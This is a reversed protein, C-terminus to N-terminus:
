SRKVPTWARPVSLTEDPRIAFVPLRFEIALRAYVEILPPMLAAGMHADLHTVDIGADLAREIQARLEREVEDLAAGAIAAATTRPFCGDADVLSPM